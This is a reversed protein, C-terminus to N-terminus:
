CYIRLFLKKTNILNKKCDIWYDMWDRKWNRKWHRMEEDDDNKSDDKYCLLNIIQAFVTKEATKQSIILSKAIEENKEEDNQTCKNFYFTKLIYPLIINLTKYNSYIIQKDKMNLLSQLLQDLSVKQDIQNQIDKIIEDNLPYVYQLGYEDFEKMIGKTGVDPTKALYKRMMDKSDISDVVSLCSKKIEILSLIELVLAVFEQTSERLNTKNYIIDYIKDLGIVKNKNKNKINKEDVIVGCLLQAIKEYNEEDRKLINEKQSLGFLILRETDNNIEIPKNNGLCERNFKKVLKKDVKQQKEKKEKEMKKGKKGDDMKKDIGM